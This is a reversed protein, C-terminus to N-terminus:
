VVHVTAAKSRTSQEGPIAEHLTLAICDYTRRTPLKSTNICFLGPRPARPKSSGPQYHAPPATPSYKEVISLPTRPLNKLHFLQLLKSAIQGVIDRYHTFLADASEPEHDPSTRMHRLFEDFRGEYGYYAAIDAMEDTVRKVEQLGLEHVQQTTMSTTTHFAFCNKYYQAGNPYGKVASMETRLNPVYETRLYDALSTFARKVPGSIEDHCAQEVHEESPPFANQIPDAFEQLNGTLMQDIQEVVGDLSVQPPTRREELGQQLLEMAEELKRPISRLFNLYIQRQRSTKLPLVSALYPLDTQPGELRNICCLYAKHQPVLRVYNHLQQLYLDYSRVDVVTTLEDRSVRQLVRKLARKAWELRREFSELSRDDFM